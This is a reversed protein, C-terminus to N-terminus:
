MALLFFSAVDLQLLEENDYFATLLATIMHFLKVDTNTFPGKREGDGGEEEKDGALDSYCIITHNTLSSRLPSNLSLPSLVNV